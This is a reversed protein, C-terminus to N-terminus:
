ATKPVTVEKNRPQAAAPQRGMKLLALGTPILLLYCLASFLMTINIGFAMSIMVGLVSALVGTAGNIGWFWPTPLPDIAEVLRLGTPFAFGLLFGLPMIVAVSIGIRVLREEGTTHEFLAPLLHEMLALYIVVVAGWAVLKGHSNLKLKDSTLSGLGSALILSFLCVSLSYIPHGLYVSFRQLLAIEALMFGIGILSFYLSGTVALPIPCELAVSRLPVIVTAIVAIFSLFLILILVGSAILNGALVGTGAQHKLHLQVENPIDLFRLQNFFFPRNDTSVTLDLRSANAAQNLVDISQSETIARLLSSLPPQGPALLVFFGLDHVTNNLIQLQEPSFPKKSLVLTAIRGDSAVYLNPRADKVGSELLVATALGIMRGTENVNDSSYWRSVTFIGGDNISKLFARWGELTYLGNESLSFAGAGTAAWTDIMSMQVLDFKEHTSAFWSRADDVHLKLNPITTVNAFNRFFPERTLLNIFIPNLEVGTVDPVGFYHATVVDRGGGVGVVASKHIGPLRYALTVLDYQLFSVADPTDYKFMTTGAAGDINLISQPVRTSPPTKPSPGWLNPFGVTPQTAVIRSYSNWKEYLISKQSEVADKVLLPRVGIPLLANVLAFLALALTIPGPRRWYPYSQLQQQDAGSASAAFAMAALGCAVGTVLVATPGNFVNLTFIVAMCGLAAGLLDVGYVQGRPFPSRTLALSVVIGSFVYPVAMAVLLLGWAFVTTLTLSTATVLCFQLIISAPIAVATALAFNTLTISLPIAELRERNLYAWVAGVTMGLMAVSIAFFAM